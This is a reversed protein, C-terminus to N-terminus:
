DLSTAKLKPDFTIQIPNMRLAENRTDLWIRTEANLVVDKGLSLHPNYEPHGHVFGQQALEDHLAHLELGDLLGVIINRGKHDVWVALESLDASLERDEPPNVEHKPLAGTHYFVTMHYETGDHTKFPAGKLLSHIKLVSSEDPDLWVYLGGNPSLGHIDEYLIKAIILAKQDKTM